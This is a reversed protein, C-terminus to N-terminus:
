SQARAELLKIVADAFMSNFGMAQRNLQAPSPTRGAQPTGNVQGQFGGGDQPFSGEFGGGDPPPGGGGPEGGFGGGPGGGNAQFQAQLTARQDASVTPRGEADGGPFGGYTERMAALDDQTWTLAQIAQIQAPTMTEEIQAYLAKIEDQATNDSTSLSKLAQWLPLLEQAQEATVAQDTGEIKLTGIALKMEVAMEAPDSVQAGTSTTNQTTTVANVASCAVLASITVLGALIVFISKKMSYVGELTTLPNNM